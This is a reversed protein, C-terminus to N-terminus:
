KSGRVDDVWNRAVVKTWCCVQRLAVWNCATPNAVNAPSTKSVKSWSPKPSSISPRESPNFAVRSPNSLRTVLTTFGRIAEILDSSSGRISPKSFGLGIPLFPDPSLELFVGVGCGEITANCATTGRYELPSAFTVATSAACPQKPTISMVKTHCPSTARARRGSAEPDGGADGLSADAVAFGLILDDGVGGALGEGRNMVIMGGDRGDVGGFWWVPDGRDSSARARKSISPSM